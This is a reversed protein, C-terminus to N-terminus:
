VSQKREESPSILAVIRITSGSKQERDRRVCFAWEEENEKVVPRKTWSYHFVEQSHKLLLDTDSDRIMSSRVRYLEARSSVSDHHLTHPRPSSFISIRLGKGNNVKTILAYRGDKKRVFDVAKFALKSTRWQVLSSCKRMFFANKMTARRLKRWERGQSWKKSPRDMFSQTM